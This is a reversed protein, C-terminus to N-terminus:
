GPIALIAGLVIAALVIAGAIWKGATVIAPAIAERAAPPDAELRRTLARLLRPADDYLRAVELLMAEAREAGRAPMLRSALLKARARDLASSLDFGPEIGSLVGDMTIMAKFILVLDPPLVLRERRLLPFLDATLTSLVLPGGSHRAVLRESATLIRDYPVDEGQNWGALTDALASPDGSRLALIFRLFEQQRRPSVHGTLGLDLLALRNGPLCLLNGPHPDGHFRGNILVMDLVLDAGLAAIAAPDIGADRLTQANRPAIGEVYDMALLAESTWQWHIEPIVVRDDGALDARLRDANRGEVMFDLEDILEQALQRVLAKPQFRRAERSSAEVMEALHSILRLDAEMQRRIGPRRIKLVIERGDHTTARHVQAISAAALPEPDFRAFVSEPPEGLAQEVQARLAEFPLTAARNHLHALEAIWEDPLLDRRTSLIQGLKVYTPGLAEIAERTRRPLDIPAGDESGNALGLRALLVDLGYRAAVGTVEALRERDRAAVAITKIM